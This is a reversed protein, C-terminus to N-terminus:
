EEDRGIFANLIFPHGAPKRRTEPEKYDVAVKWVDIDPYRAALLLCLLAHIKPGLPAIIINHTLRLDLCLDKLIDNTKHIDALPYNFLNRAPTNSILKSNASFVEKVYANDPSPDAYMLYLHDPNLKKILFEAIGKEGGMGIILALPRGATQRSRGQFVSGAALMSKIKGPKEYEAYTYSFYIDASTLKRETELFYQVFSAYWIKTMCSFDILIRIRGGALKEITDRLVNLVVSHDCASCMVQQFGEKALIEDNKLRYEKRSKEIFALAIKQKARINYNKVLYTSREEYGSSVIFVDFEIAPLDEIGTQSLRILEM